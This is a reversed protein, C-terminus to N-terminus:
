LKNNVNWALLVRGLVQFKDRDANTILYPQYKANDSIMLIGDPRRQLRKIYLEDNLALVFVDDIKVDNIGRDVLLLDGDEFTGLMSNGYATILGLNKPSTFSVKQRLFDMSVTMLEVVDNYEEPLRFGPGMSAAVDYVPIQQFEQRNTRRDVINSLQEGVRKPGKGTVLWTASFGTLAEIGQAYDLKITKIGGSLWQNATGRSVDAARYLEAQSFGADIIEQIREALLSMNLLRFTKENLTSSPLDNLTRYKNRIFVSCSISSNPPGECTLASV